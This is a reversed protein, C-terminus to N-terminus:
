TRPDSKSARQPAIPRGAQPLSISFSMCEVPRSSFYTSGQPRFVIGIIPLTFSRGPRRCGPRQRRGRGGLHAASYPLAGGLLSLVALVLFVFFLVKAAMYSMDAVLGFGFLAAILAIVLFVLAWRLM